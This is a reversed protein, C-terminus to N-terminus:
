YDFLPLINEDNLRMIKEFSERVFGDGGNRNLVHTAVKKIYPHADAPAISNGAYKMAQLDNIDNGIYVLGSSATNDGLVRSAIHQKLFGLKDDVGQYCDVKLKKARKSVVINPEKSIIFCDILWGERQSFRRLMEFALGDGRDCKVFETGDSGNWVKNDTFVGDFDLAITHVDRWHPFKLDNPKAKVLVKNWTKSEMQAM